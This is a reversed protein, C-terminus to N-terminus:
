GNNAWTTLHVETDIDRAFVHETRGGRALCWVVPSCGSYCANYTICACQIVNRVTIIFLKRKKRTRNTNSSLYVAKPITRIM